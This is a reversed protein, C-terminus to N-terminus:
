LKPTFIQPKWPLVVPKKELNALQEELRKEVLCEGDQTLADRVWDIVMQEKVKAFEVKASNTEFVAYGETEVKYEGDNVCCYYKASSIVGKDAFVDLIKWTFEM